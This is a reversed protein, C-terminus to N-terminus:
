TNNATEYTYEANVRRGINASNTKRSTRRIFVSAAQENQQRLATMDCEAGSSVCVVPLSQLDTCSM